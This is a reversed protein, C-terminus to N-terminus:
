EIAEAATTHLPITWIGMGFVTLKYNHTITVEAEDGVTESGNTDCTTDYVYQAQTCPSGSSNEGCYDSGSTSNPFSLAIESPQLTVDGATSNITQQVALDCINSVQGGGGLSLERAGVRAADVITTYQSYMSGFQLIATILLLLLPM